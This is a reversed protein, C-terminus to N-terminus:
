LRKEIVALRTKDISKDKKLKRIRRYILYRLKSNYKSLIGKQYAKQTEIVPMVSGNVVLSVRLNEPNRGCHEAEQSALILSELENLKEEGTM